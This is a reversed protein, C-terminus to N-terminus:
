GRRGALNYVPYKSILAQSKTFIRIYKYSDSPFTGTPHLSYCQIIRDGIRTEESLRSGYSSYPRKHFFTWPSFVRSLCWIRHYLLSTGLPLPSCVSVWELPSSVGVEQGFGLLPQLLFTESIGQFFSSMRWSIHYFLYSFLLFSELGSLTVVMFFAVRDVM